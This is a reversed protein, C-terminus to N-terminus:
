AHDDGKNSNFNARIERWHKCRANEWANNEPVYYNEHRIDDPLYQQPVWHGPYNHPYLYNKPCEVSIHIPVTAGKGEAIDAQAKSLAKTCSTSKPALALYVAAQVLYRAAEPFGLREAADQCAVTHAVAYPDALGIDEAAMVLMRRFPSTLDEGEAFRTAYFAAASPDSGRISKQLASKLQYHYTEAMDFSQHSMSFLGSTSLDEREITKNPFMSTLGVVLTAAQRMDGAVSQALADIADDAMADQMNHRALVSKIRSAIADDPVREFRLTLMRSLLPDYIQAKPNDATSAILTFTNAEVYPLLSQQQKKNFYQIEDLYVVPPNDPDANEAAAQIDKTSASTANLMVLPRNLETALLNASSTKGTGAPGFFVLSQNLGEKSLRPLIGTEPNCLKYQGAIDAFSKPTFDAMTLKHTM